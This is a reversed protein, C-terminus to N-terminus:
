AVLQAIAKQMVETKTEADEASTGKICYYFKCKPETGSPWIAIWSGDALYYKLVNSRSFGELPSVVGQEERTAEQYDEIATVAVSGIQTPKDQRLTNLIEQIRMAGEQGKLTLSTQSEKYYGLEEYLGNLVDVLTKGQAKYFCAAEALM